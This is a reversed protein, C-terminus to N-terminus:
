ASARSPEDIFQECYESLTVQAGKRKRSDGLLASVRSPEDHVTRLVREFHSSRGHAKM